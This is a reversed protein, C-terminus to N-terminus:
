KSKQCFSGLCSPLRKGLRLGLEHVRFFRKCSRDPSPPCPLPVLGETVGRECAAEVDHTLRQALVLDCGHLRCRDVAGGGARLAPFPRPLAKPVAM